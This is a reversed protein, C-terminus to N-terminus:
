TKQSSTAQIEAPPLKPDLCYGDPPRKPPILWQINLNFKALDLWYAARFEQTDGKPHNVSYHVGSEGNDLWKILQMEPMIAVNVLTADEHDVMWIKEDAKHKIPCSVYAQVAWDPNAGESRAAELRKQFETNRSKGRATRVTYSNYCGDVSEVNQVRSAISQMTDGVTWYDIGAIQDMAEKLSDNEEEVPELEAGDFWENRVAGWVLNEFARRSNSLDFEFTRTAM